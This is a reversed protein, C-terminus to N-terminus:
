FLGQAALQSLGKVQQFAQLARAFTDAQCPLAHGLQEILVDVGERGFQQANAPNGSCMCAIVGACIPAHLKKKVLETLTGVFAKNDGMTTQAQTSSCSSLVTLGALDRPSQGGIVFGIAAAVLATSNAIKAASASQSSLYGLCKWVLLQAKNDDDGNCPLVALPFLVDCCTRAQSDAMEKADALAAGLAALEAILSALPKAKAQQFLAFSAEGIRSNAPDEKTGFSSTM